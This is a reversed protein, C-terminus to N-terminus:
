DETGPRATLCVLRDRTEGRPDNQQVLNLAASNTYDAFMRMLSDPEWETFALMEPCLDVLDRVAGWWGGYRHAADETGPWEAAQNLLHFLTTWDPEPVVPSKVRMEIVNSM